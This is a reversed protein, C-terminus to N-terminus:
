RPKWFLFDYLFAIELFFFAVDKKIHNIFKYRHTFHRFNSVKPDCCRQTFTLKYQLGRVLSCNKQVSDRTYETFIIINQQPYTIHLM